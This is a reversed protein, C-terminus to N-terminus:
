EGLAVPEAPVASAPPGTLPLTFRFAAGGEPHPAVWMRGGHAAIIGRCITLGLGAGSAPETGAGRHFKDFVAEESGAPVGPGRDAVEVVVEGEEPWASVTVPTGAPTYKVANELLNIFVQEILVEDIPVLALERPLRTTVPHDALRDEMRLLAVGLAEELPQWSRQVALGGTEVRVMDLLNAVLRTMRRSEELITDAMDRRVEPPLADGDHLLASAAGQITGLPTRLDHSLSSLIATRLREAEVEVRAQEHRQAWLMSELAAATRDVLAEATQRDAPGITDELMEPRLVAVGLTRAGARLPVALAEAESGHVTGMGAPEGHEYAYSAAIRVDIGDYIGDAPWEPRGDPCTSQDVLTVTADGKALRRLHQRAIALQEQVGSVEDLDRDLAYLAATRREREMADIAQDRVRGTLRSMLVAVLLMVAFTLFYAANHVNFTYYPPVFVWDFAAIGAVSALLAAGLRYRSAVLVVALLYLMAVDTPQLYPRLPLCAATVLAVLGAAKLYEREPYADATVM